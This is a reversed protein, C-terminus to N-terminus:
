RVQGLEKQKRKQIEIVDEPDIGHATMFAEIEILLDGLEELLHDRDGERVADRVELAEEVLKAGSAVEVARDHRPELPPLPILKPTIEDSRKFREVAELLLRM